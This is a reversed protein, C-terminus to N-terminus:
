YAFPSAFHQSAYDVLHKKTSDPFNSLAAIAKQQYLAAMSLSWRIGGIEEILDITAEIRNEDTIPGHKTFSRLFIRQGESAEQLAYLLPLTKTGQRLDAALDECDDVIQDMMGIHLGYQHLAQLKESSGGTAMRGGAWAGVAFAMGTKGAIMAFYNELSSEKVPQSATQAQAALALVNNFAHSIEKQRRHDAIHGLAINAGSLAYLASSVATPAGQAFLFNNEEYGDVVDDFIRGALVFLIWAAAVPKAEEFNGGASLCALIPLTDVYSRASHRRNRGYHLIMDNAEQWGLSPLVSHELYAYISEFYPDVTEPMM